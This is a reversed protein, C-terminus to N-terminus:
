GYRCTIMQQSQNLFKEGTSRKNYVAINKLDLVEPLSVVKTYHSNVVRERLRVQEPRGIKQLLGGLLLTEAGDASPNHALDEDAQHQPVPV